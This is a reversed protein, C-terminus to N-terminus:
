GEGMKEMRKMEKVGKDQEQREGNFCQIIMINEGELYCVKSWLAAM